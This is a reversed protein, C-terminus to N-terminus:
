HENFSNLFNQKNVIKTWYVILLNSNMNMNFKWVAFANCYVDNYIKVAIVIEIKRICAEFNLGFLQTTSSIKGNWYKKGFKVRM